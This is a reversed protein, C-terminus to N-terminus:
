HFKCDFARVMTRQPYESLETASNMLRIVKESIKESLIKGNESKDEYGDLASIQSLSLNGDM